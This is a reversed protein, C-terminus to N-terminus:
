SQTRSACAVKAVATHANGNDLYHFPLTARLAMVGPGYPQKALLEGAFPSVHCAFSCRTPDPLGIANLRAWWNASRAFPTQFYISHMHAPPPIEDKRPVQGTASPQLRGRRYQVVCGTNHTSCSSWWRYMYVQAVLCFLM